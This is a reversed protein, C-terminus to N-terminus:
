NIVPAELFDLDYTVWGKEKERLLRIYARLSKVDVIIGAITRENFIGTQRGYSTDSMVRKLMSVSMENHVLSYARNYRIRTGYQDDGHELRSLETIYHNTHVFPTAPRTLIQEAASCEINWITGDLGAITHSYGSARKLTALQKFDNEPSATESLRRAVVNRPIGIQTDTHVLSNIAQIYGHSNISVANGGLTNLYFLELITLSGVTKKLVCIQDNATSDWDENHGILLENGTIVTTCRNAYPTYLEEELCVWIDDLTMGAGDAYGQLEQIYQPFVAATVDRYPRSRAVMRHWTNGEKLEEVSQWLSEGFMEGLQFGLDYYSRSSIEYYNDHCNDHGM